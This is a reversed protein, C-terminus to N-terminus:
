LYSSSPPDTTSSSSYTVPLNSILHPHSAAITSLTLLTQHSPQHPFARHTGTEQADGNHPSFVFTAGSTRITLSCRIRRKDPQKQKQKHPPTRLSGYMDPGAQEHQWMDDAGTLSSVLEIGYEHITECKGHGDCLRRTRDVHLM